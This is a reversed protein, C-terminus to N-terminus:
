RELRLVQGPYRGVSLVLDKLREVVLLSNLSLNDLLSKLSSSDLLSKVLEPQNDM